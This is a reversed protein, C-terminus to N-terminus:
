TNGGEANTLDETLMETVEKQLELMEKHTPQGPVLEYKGNNAQYMRMGTRPDTVQASQFLQQPTPPSKLLQPLIANEKLTIQADMQQVQEPTWEGDQLGKLLKNRASQFGAIQKEQEPTYGWRMNQSDVKKKANIRAGLKEAMAKEQENRRDQIEGLFETRATRAGPRGIREFAGTPPLIFDGEPAAEGRFGKPKPVFDSEPPKEDLEVITGDLKLAQGGGGAKSIWARYKAM